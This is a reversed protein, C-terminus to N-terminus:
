NANLPIKCLDICMLAFIPSRCKAMARTKM